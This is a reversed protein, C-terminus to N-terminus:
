PYEFTKRPHYLVRGLDWESRPIMGKWIKGGTRLTYFEIIVRVKLSFTQKHQANPVPKAKCIAPVARSNTRNLLDATIFFEQHRLIVTELRVRAISYGFYRVM